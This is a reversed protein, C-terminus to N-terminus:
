DQRSMAVQWTGDFNYALETESHGLAMWAATTSACRVADEKTDVTLQVFRLITFTALSGELDHHWRLAQSIGEYVASGYVREYIALSDPLRVSFHSSPVSEIGIEAFAGRGDKYKTFRYSANM